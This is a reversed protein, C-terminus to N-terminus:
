GSTLPPGAGTMCHTCCCLIFGVWRSRDLKLFLVRNQRRLFVSKQREWEYCGCSTHPPTPPLPPPTPFITLYPPIVLSREDSLFDCLTLNSCAKNLCIPGCSNYPSGTSLNAGVSAFLECLRLGPKVRTCTWVLQSVSGYRSGLRWEWQLWWPAFVWGSFFLADTAVCPFRLKCELHFKLEVKMSNCPWSVWYKSIPEICRDCCLNCVLFVSSESSIFNWRLKWRIVRGHRRVSALPLSMFCTSKNVVPGNRSSARRLQRCPSQSRPAAAPARRAADATRRRRGWRGEWCAKPSWGPPADKRGVNQTEMAAAVLWTASSEQGDDSQDYLSGKM